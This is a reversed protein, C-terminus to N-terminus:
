QDGELSVQTDELGEVGGELQAFIQDTIGAGLIPVIQARGAAKMVAPNTIGHNYLRRARVRGIGRLRILPLLEEKIGNKVRLEFDGLMTALHPAFMGSIRTGAHLLWQVSEVMTYIDGPGVGYRECIIAEGTENAWDLLLLATKLGSLFGEMEEDGYFPIELWLADGHERLVRDLLHQDGKKLHLCPMDPTRCILQLFGLESFSINKRMTTAILEASRPDLYLRSVLTGYETSRYRDGVEFVMESIRLYEMSQLLVNELLAEDGKQHSYLTRKLFDSLGTYDTTFGTSILSLIHTCLAWTTACRSRIDEPPANLYWDALREVDGEGKAILVAEGYPDLRPRGARGAMQHYERVPIPVMGEGAEYRLYDRILVRRAPLNLGAALTPTSAICRIDGKRFGKEVLSRVERRLGAHHYATGCRICAALEKEMEIESLSCLEDSIASRRGDGSGLFGAVKHAFAEANRRSSVFVLCQGGEGLTDMVLNLDDFKSVSPVSREGSLFVIKGRYFVGQRLEVPRWTSTVPEAELWGALEQPNGITASLAIIQMRPNQYRLKTIVMELTPGRDSSDLLHVEDIVLLTIDGLWPSINRLLSDVKESTAIVLQNRGLYEDRRDYDGTAIGVSLGKGSFEEYKESALAKLPVVYLCKGGRACHHHMAMEAILTKGSATTISVILNNWEFLGKEVCIEQPPYLELIGQQRYRDALPPPIPLDAIRM